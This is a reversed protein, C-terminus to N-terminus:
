NLQHWCPPATCRCRHWCTLRCLWGVQSAQSREAGGLGAGGSGLVLAARQAEISPAASGVRRQEQVVGESAGTSGPATAGLDALSGFGRGMRAAEAGPKQSRDAFPSPPKQQQGTPLPPQRGGAVDDQGRGGAATAAAAASNAARADRLESPHEQLGVAALEELAADFLPTRNSGAGGGGRLPNLQGGLAGSGEAHAGSDSSPASKGQAHCPPRLLCASPPRVLRLCAHVNHMVAYLDVLSSCCVIAARWCSWAVSRALRLGLHDVSRLLCHLLVQFLSALV